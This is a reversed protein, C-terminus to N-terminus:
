GQFTLEVVVAIAIVAIAKMGGMGVVGVVIVVVVVVVVVIGIRRVEVLGIGSVVRVGVSFRVFGVIPCTL